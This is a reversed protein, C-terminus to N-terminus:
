DFLSSIWHFDYFLEGSCARCVFESAGLRGWFVGVLRGALPNVCSDKPAKKCIISVGFLFECTFREPATRGEGRALVVWFLCRGVLWCFLWGALPNMRSDQHCRRASSVPVLFSERTFRESTTRGEGRALVVLFPWRAVLRGVFWGILLSPSRPTAPVGGCADEIVILGIRRMSLHTRASSVYSFSQWSRDLLSLPHLKPSREQMHGWVLIFIYIYIYIHTNHINYM